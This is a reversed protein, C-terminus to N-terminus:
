SNYIFHEIIFFLSNHLSNKTYMFLVSFPNFSNQMPILKVRLGELM